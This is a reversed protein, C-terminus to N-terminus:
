LEHGVVCTAEIIWEERAPSIVAIPFMTKTPTLKFILEQVTNSYTDKIHGAFSCILLAQYFAFQLILRQMTSHMIKHIYVINLTEYFTKFVVIYIWNHKFYLRFQFNAIWYEHNAGNPQM